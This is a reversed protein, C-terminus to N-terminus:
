SIRQKGKLNKKNKIGPPRKGEWLPPLTGSHELKVTVDWPLLFNTGLIFGPQDQIGIAHSYISSAGLCVLSWSSFRPLLGPRILSHLMRPLYETTSTEYILGHESSLDDYDRIFVRNDEDDDECQQPKPEDQEEEDEEDADEDDEQGQNNENEVYEDSAWHEAESESSSSPSFAAEQQSNERSNERLNERSSTASRVTGMEHDQQSEEAEDQNSSPNHKKMEKLRPNLEQYFEALSNKSSEPQSEFSCDNDSMSSTRDTYQVVQAPRYDVISPEFVSFKIRELTACNCKQAIMVYFNHNAEKVTFPDNRTAQRGGCDCASTIMIGSCHPMVPLKNSDSNSAEDETHHVEGNEYGVKHVPNICNNNTVSVVECMQRGNQWYADCDQKLQEAYEYFAPGRSQVTFMQLAQTLKRSHLDLTYHTPLGEQYVNLAIPLVKSCRNESYRRDIDLSTRLHSFPSSSENSDDDKALFPKKLKILVKLFDRITPLEFCSTHRGFNDDFGKTLALNIHPWLFSYFNRSNSDEESEAIVPSCYKQLLSFFFNQADRIAPDSTSIYVFDSQSCVAFLSNACINTIIRSKRLFRYIQDELHCELKRKGLRLIQSRLSSQYAEFFFLVRPSCPRGNYVWHNSINPFEKLIEFVFSQTKIRATNLLRFLHLYNLDFHSVPNVIM